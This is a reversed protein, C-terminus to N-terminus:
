LLITQTIFKHNYCLRFTMIEYSFAKLLKILASSLTILNKNKFNYESPIIIIYLETIIKYYLFYDSMTFYSYLCVVGTNILIGRKKQSVGFNPPRFTPLRQSVFREVELDRVCKLKSRLSSHIAILKAITTIKRNKVLKSLFIKIKLM